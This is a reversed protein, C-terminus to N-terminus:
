GRDDCWWRKLDVHWELELSISALIAAAEAAMSALRHRLAVIVARWNSADKGFDLRASDSIKILLPRSVPLFFRSDGTSKLDATQLMRLYGVM